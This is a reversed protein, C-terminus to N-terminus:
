IYWCSTHYFLVISLSICWIRGWDMPNKTGHQTHTNPWIVICCVCWHITHFIIGPYQRNWHINMSDSVSHLVIFSFLFVSTSLVFLFLYLLNFWMLVLVTANQHIGQSRQLVCVYGYPMSSDSNQNRHRCNLALETAKWLKSCQLICQICMVSLLIKVLGVFWILVITKGIRTGEAEIWAIYSEYITAFNINEMSLLFFSKQDNRCNKSNSLEISKVWM